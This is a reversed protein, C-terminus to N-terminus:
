DILKHKRLLEEMKENLTDYNVKYEKDSSSTETTIFMDGVDAFFWNLNVNFKKVLIELIELSPKRDGREYSTYARYSIGTQTSVEEQSLNLHKRIEKLKSAYM